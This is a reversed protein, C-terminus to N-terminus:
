LLCTGGGLNRLECFQRFHGLAIITDHVNIVTQTSPNFLFTSGDRPKVAVLILGVTGPLDLEKLTKGIMPSDPFVEVEDLTLGLAESKLIIDLFSVVQPRLAAAALRHASITQPCIVYDAGSKKMIEVSEPKIARGVVRLRPNLYRATIVIYVTQEDTAVSAILGRAREIGAEKLIEEDTASGEVLLIGPYHKIVDELARHSEEIVVFKEQSKYFEDIIVGGVIGAGCIVFHNEINRLEMRIKRRRMFESLKGESSVYLLYSLTLSVVFMGGGILFITFIRGTASLPHTESFGVTSLTIVTMYLADLFTWGEIFSYGLAGGAVTLLATILIIILRREM